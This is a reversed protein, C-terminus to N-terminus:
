SILLKFWTIRLNCWVKGNICILLLQKVQYLEDVILIFNNVLM